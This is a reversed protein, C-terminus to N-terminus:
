DMGQSTNNPKKTHHPTQVPRLIPPVHDTKFIRWGAPDTNTRLNTSNAPNGTNTMIHRNVPSLDTVLDINGGPKPVFFAHSCWKHPETVKTIRGKNIIDAIHEEAKAQYRLPIQRTTLAKYPTEGKLDVDIKAPPIYLAEQMRHENLVKHEDTHALRKAKGRHIFNINGASQPLLFDKHLLGFSICDKWSVIMKHNLRQAILAEVEKKMGNCRGHTKTSGIISMKTGCATVM